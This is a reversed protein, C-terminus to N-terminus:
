NVDMVVTSPVACADVLTVTEDVVFVVYVHAAAIEHLADTGGGAAVGPVYQPKVFWPEDMQRSTAAVPRSTALSSTPTTTGQLPRVVSTSTSITNVPMGIPPFRPNPVLEDVSAPSIEPVPNM